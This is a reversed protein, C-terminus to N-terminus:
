GKMLMNDYLEKVKKSFVKGGIIKYFKEKKDEPWNKYSNIFKKSTITKYDFDFIKFEKYLAEQNSPMTLNGVIIKDVSFNLKNKM